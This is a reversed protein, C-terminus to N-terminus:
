FRQFGRNFTGHGEGERSPVMMSAPMMPTEQETPTGGPLGKQGPCSSRFLMNDKSFLSVAAVVVVASIV